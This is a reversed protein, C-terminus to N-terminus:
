SAEAGDTECLLMPLLAGVSPIVLCDVDHYIGKPDLLVPTMGASRAGLVDAHFNDGVYISQAAEVELAKLGWEFVRPDPKYWGVEGAALALDFLGALGIEELTDDLPNSRNSILGLKYGAERLAELTCPVDEPVRDVPEYADRMRLTIAEALAPIAEEPAGLAQLHRRAHNVWFPGNERWDGFRLLDEQLEPSDAWYANVWREGVRRQSERTPFGLEAAVAYFVALAPPESHRLTGDLDFIVARVNPPFRDVVM